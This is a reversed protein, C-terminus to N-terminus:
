FIGSIRVVNALKLLRYVAELLRWSDPIMFEVREENINTVIM